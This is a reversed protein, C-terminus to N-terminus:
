KKTIIAVIIAAAAAAGAAIAAVVGASMGQQVIQPPPPPAQPAPAQQTLLSSLDSLSQTGPILGKAAPAGTKFAAAAAPLVKDPAWHSLSETFVEFDSKRAGLSLLVSKDEEGTIPADCACGSLERQRLLEDTYREVFVEREADGINVGSLARLDPSTFRALIPHKEVWAKVLRRCKPDEKTAGREAIKKGASFAQMLGSAVDAVDSGTALAKDIDDPDDKAGIPLFPALDGAIGELKPGWIVATPSSPVPYPVYEPQGVGGAPKDFSAGAPLTGKVARGSPDFAPIYPGWPTPYPAQAMTKPAVAPARAPAPTPATEPAAPADTPEEGKSLLAALGVGVALGAATVAVATGVGEVKLSEKRILQMDPMM